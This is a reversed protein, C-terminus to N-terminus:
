GAFTDYFMRLSVVCLMIGFIRKLLQPSTKHALRVGLPAGSIAGMVIGIFANKDVYGLLKPDILEPSLLFYGLAGSM